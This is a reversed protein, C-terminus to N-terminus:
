SALAQYPMPAGLPVGTSITSRSLVAIFSDSASGLNFARSASRPAVTSVPEDASRPLYADPLSGHRSFSSGLRFTPFRRDGFGCSAFLRNSFGLRDSLLCRLLRGPKRWAAFRRGCLNCDLLPWDALPWLRCCDLRRRAARRPRSRLLLADADHGVIVAM